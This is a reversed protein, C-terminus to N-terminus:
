YQNSSSANSLSSGQTYSLPLISKSVDTGSSKSGAITLSLFLTRIQHKQIYLKPRDIPNRQAGPDSFRRLVRHNKRHHREEAISSILAQGPHSIIKDHLWVLSRDEPEYGPLM